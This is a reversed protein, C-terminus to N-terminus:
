EKSHNDNEAPTGKELGVEKGRLTMTTSGLVEPTSGWVARSWSSLSLTAAIQRACVNDSSLKCLPGRRLPDAYRAVM